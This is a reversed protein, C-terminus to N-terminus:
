PTANKKEIKRVVNGLPLKFQEWVKAHKNLWAGCFRRIFERLVPTPTDLDVEIHGVVRFGKGIEHRGLRFM